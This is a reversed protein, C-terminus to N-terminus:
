QLVNRARWRDPHFRKRSKDVLIRYEELTMNFRAHAFFDEVETWAIDEVRLTIPSHLVPWPILDLVVPAEATFKVTDFEASL